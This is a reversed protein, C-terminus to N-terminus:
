AQANRAALPKVFVVQRKQEICGERLYFQHARTRIVNSRITLSQFGAARAWAEVATLLAKGVGRSRAADAVVLAALEAFPADVVFEETVARAFGCVHGADDLAVLAVGTADDAIRALNAAVLPAATTPHGLQRSLDAVAEADGATAARITTM